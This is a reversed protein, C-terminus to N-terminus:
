IVTMVLDKILSRVGRILNFGILSDKDISFTRIVQQFGRRILVKVKLINEEIFILSAIQM